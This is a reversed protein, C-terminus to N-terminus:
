RPERLRDRALRAAMGSGAFRGALRPRDRRAALVVRDGELAFDVESGPQLGVRERLEKPIVVQGKAGVRHTM